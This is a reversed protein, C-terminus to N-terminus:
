SPAWRLLSWTASRSRAARGPAPGRIAPASASWSRPRTSASSGTRTTSGTGDASRRPSARPPRTPVGATGEPRGGSAGPTSASAPPGTSPRPLPRPRSPTKPTLASMDVYSHRAAMLFVRKRRSALGYDVADLVRYEASCWDASWLEERIGDLINEPLASSQEMALWRLNDWRATLTLAWILVEALLGIREDTMEAIPARVEDLTLLPGTFGSYGDWDPDSCILCIDAEDCPGCEASDHWHGFTAEFAATFVDLLLDQNRPDQGARKGAPTWCQCPASVILGRVWRLAPHKPDLSRVDAVIRRFGAARATASADKHMEVGVTDLDHQLVDRVGVDWGGPGAFLNIVREPDGPKPPFLWHVPWPAAIEELEEPTKNSLDLEEPTGLAGATDLRTLSM